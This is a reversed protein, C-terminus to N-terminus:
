PLYRRIHRTGKDTGKWDTLVKSQALAPGIVAQSFGKLLNALSDYVLPTLVSDFRMLDRLMSYVPRGEEVIPVVPIGYSPVIAQLEAPVSRPTTVDAIIFLSMGALIRITETFDTRTPREFDFIMAIFGQANLEKRLANLVRKRRPDSFRGLILVSKASLGSIAGRINKNNLLLYAFQAIQLDDVTLRGEHLDQRSGRREHRTRYRIIFGRQEAGELEVDWASMGYVTCGVLHAGTFNTKALQVGQLNARILRANQFQTEYLDTRCFNAGTLNAHHLRARALNAQHFNANKLTANDLRAQCLNAYSFDFDSLRRGRLDSGSLIPHVDPHQSRWENWIRRGQDLIARHERKIKLLQRFQPSQDIILRGLDILSGRKADPILPTKFQKGIPVVPIRQGEVVLQGDIACEFTLGNHFFATAV